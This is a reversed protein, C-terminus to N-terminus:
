GLLPLRAVLQPARARDQDSPQRRGTGILVADRDSWEAPLEAGAIGELVTRVHRLLVPDPEPPSPLHATLDLHHIGAEVALTDAFDATVLAHGQTSVRTGSGAARAARVAATATDTWHGVLTAPSRYAASAVRVFRAHASEAVPDAGPRFPAWYSVADVDAAADTPSAYAVLARQADLLLHFLLDQVCWASAGTPRWFQDDPLSSVTSTVQAYARDLLDLPDAV